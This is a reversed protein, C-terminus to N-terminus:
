SNLKAKIRSRLTRIANPGVGFITQIEADTKGEHTLIMFLKNKSTLDSYLTELSAMYAGEVISYYEVCDDLDRKKWNVISKGEMIERFRTIGNAYIETQRSKLESLKKNLRAIEDTREKTATEANQQLEEIRRSLADEMMHNRMMEEKLKAHRYFFYIRMIITLLVAVIIGMTLLRIRNLSLMQEYEHEVKMQEAHVSGEERRKSITDRVSMLSDAAICASEFDGIDRRMHFINDLIQEKLPMSATNLAKRWLSDAIQLQGERAYVYALNAIAANIPKLSISKEYFEKAINIDSDKFMFGLNNYMRAKQKTNLAPAYRMSSKMTDIAEKLRGFELIAAGQFSIARYINVSDNTLMAYRRTRHAYELATDRNGYYYNVLFLLTAIQHQLLTDTTEDTLKEAKKLAGAAMHVNGSAYATKAQYYYALAAREHQRESHFQEAYEEMKHPSIDSDGKEARIIASLFSNDSNNRACDDDINGNLVAKEELTLRKEEQRQCSFIGLSALSIFIGALIVRISITLNM